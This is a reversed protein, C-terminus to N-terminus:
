KLWFKAGSGGMSSYASTVEQPSTTSNDSILYQALINMKFQKRLSCSMYPQYPSRLVTLAMSLCFLALFSNQTIFHIKLSMTLLCLAYVVIHGLIRPPPFEM